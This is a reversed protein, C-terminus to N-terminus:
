WNFHSDMGLQPSRIGILRGICLVTGAHDSGVLM